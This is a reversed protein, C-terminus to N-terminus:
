HALQPDTGSRASPPLIRQPRRFRRERLLAGPHRAGPLPGHNGRRVAQLRGPDARDPREGDRFVKDTVANRFAALGSGPLPEYNSAVAYYKEPGEPGLNLIKTLFDGDPDMSQLGDLGNIASAAMQKVMAIITGLTAAAPLVGGLVNIMTTYSDVFAEMHGMDALPTGGNPVGVFVARRVSFTGPIMGLKSAQEILYRAVLGGRSHSVIDLQWGQGELRRLLDAANVNPATGVTPHDFAFVRGQYHEHLKRVVDDTMSGLGGRTSSGTGHILLLTRGARYFDLDAVRLERGDTAKDELTFTRLRHRHHKAEWKDVFFDAINGVVPDLIKFALVRIFKSGLDGLPGRGEGPIPVNRRLLYTRTGGTGRTVDRAGANDVAFNWTTVGFEDTYLIVQEQNENPASVEVEIAPEDFTTRRVNNDADADESAETIEITEDRRIEQEDLLAAIADDTNDPGRLDGEVHEHSEARGSLGPTRLLINGVQVPNGGPDLDESM